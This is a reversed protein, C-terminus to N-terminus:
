KEQTVLWFMWQPGHTQLPHTLSIIFIHIVDSGDIIIIDAIIKNEDITIIAIVKEAIIKILQDVCLLAVTQLDKLNLLRVHDLM